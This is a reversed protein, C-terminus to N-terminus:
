RNSISESGKELFYRDLQEGMAKIRMRGQELIEPLDGKYKELYPMYATLGSSYFFDYLGGQSDKKFQEIKQAHIEEDFKGPHEDERIYMCAVMEFMIDPHLLTDKRLKLENILHGIMGLDPSMGNKKDKRNLAQEMAELIKDLEKRSVAAELELFSQEFRGKRVIPEDLPNRCKYYRKGNSDVFQLDYNEFNVPKRQSEFVLKHFSTPFLYYLLRLM